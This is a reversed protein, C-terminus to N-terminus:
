IRWSRSRRKSHTGAIVLLVSWAVIGAMGIGIRTWPPLGWLVITSSQLGLAGSILVYASTSALVISTIILAWFSILRSRPAFNNAYDSPTGFEGVPDEGSEVSHSEVERVIQAIAEEPVGRLELIETLEEAYQDRAAETM